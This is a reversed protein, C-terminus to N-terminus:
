AFLAQASVALREEWGGLENGQGRERMVKTHPLGETKGEDSEAEGWGRIHSAPWSAESKGGDEM